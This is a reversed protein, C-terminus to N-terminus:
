SFMQFSRRFYGLFVLSFPAKLYSIGLDVLLVGVSFLKRGGRLESRKAGGGGLEM